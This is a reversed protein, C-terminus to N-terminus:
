EKVRYCYDDEYILEDNDEYKLVFKQIEETSATLVIENEDDGNYIYHKIRLKKNKILENVFEDNFLSIKVSDQCIEARAFANVPLLTVYAMLKDSPIEAMTFNLYDYKGLHLLHANLHIMESSDTGITVGYYMYPKKVGDNVLKVEFNWVDNDIEWKGLLNEDFYVDKETYLPFLSRVTCSSIMFLLAAIAIILKTKKM